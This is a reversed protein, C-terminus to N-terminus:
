SVYGGTKASLDFNAEIFAIVEAPDIKSNFVINPGHQDLFVASLNGFKKLGRSTNQGCQHSGCEYERQSVIPIETEAYGTGKCEPCKRYGDTPECTQGDGNCDRCRKLPCHFHVICDYEPHESFVIRQSQGGVSPKSGYALVTDPGDTKIRVLGIKALDNFNTKRQSTIFTDQSLKAAFHGVTAGRFPKYANKEICYDVIKRLTPPVIDSEWPVPEGAVVTSRTFTLHSRLKAMEVLGKLADYRETTVHYRAEEPTIVMNLKTKVDNALVLNCSAEKLLNLGAIYMEDESVGDTTKFGVLFIDKRGERVTPIIKEAPKLRLTYEFEGKSHTSLRKAGKGPKHNVTKGSALAYKQAEAPVVHDPPLGDNVHTDWRAIMAVDFDCLAVPMFVIKSGLDNRISSVLRAIDANTELTGDYWTGSAVREQGTIMKTQHLVTELEPMINHCLNLLSRGAKGYAPACLAMHTAIHSITGGSIIHITKKTNMNVKRIYEDNHEYRNRGGYDWRITVYRETVGIVLGSFGKISTVVDGTKYRTM